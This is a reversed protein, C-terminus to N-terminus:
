FGTKAELQLTGFHDYDPKCPAPMVGLGCTRSMPGAEMARFPTEEVVARSEFAATRSAEAVEQRRQAFKKHSPRDLVFTKLCRGFYGGGRGRHLCCETNKTRQHPEGFRTLILYFDTHTHSLSLQMSAYRAKADYDKQMQRQKAEQQLVAEIMAEQVVRETQLLNAVDNQNQRNSVSGVTKFGVSRCWCERLPAQPKRYVTRPRACTARPFFNLAAAHAAHM